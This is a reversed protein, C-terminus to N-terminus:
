SRLLAVFVWRRARPGIIDFEARQVPFPLKRRSLRWEEFSFDFVEGKSHVRLIALLPLPYYSPTFWYAREITATPIVWGEFQLGSASVTLSGDSGKQFMSLTPEGAEYAPRRIGRAAITQTATDM